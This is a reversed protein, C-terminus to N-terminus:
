FVKESVTTLAGTLGKVYNDLEKGTIPESVFGAKAAFEQFEPTKAVGSFIRTLEDRVSKKIGAPAVFFSVQDVPGYPYVEYGKEKFTPVNPLAALRTSRFVGLARLEGSKVQSVTESPKLVCADIHGGMVAAITPAGGNFPVHRLESKVSEGALIGMAHNVNRSGSTGFTIKGPNKQVDAMFDNLDRWKSNGKVLLLMPDESLLAINTFKDIGWKIQKQGMLGLITSSAIAVTYGDPKATILETLGVASNGGEKNVIVTNVGYKSKLIPQLQRIMIDTGGGPSWPVIIKIERSPFSAAYTISFSAVLCVALILIGIRRLNSKKM